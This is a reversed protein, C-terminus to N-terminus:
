SQTKDITLRRWPVELYHGLWGAVNPSGLLWLTLYLYTTRRVQAQQVEGTGRIEGEGVGLFLLFYFTWLTTRSKVTWELVALRGGVSMVVASNM